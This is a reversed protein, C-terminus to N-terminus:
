PPMKPVRKQGRCVGVHAQVYVWMYVFLDKLAPSIALCSLVYVSSPSCQFEAVLVYM